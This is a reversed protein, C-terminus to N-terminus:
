TQTFYCCCCSWSWSIPSVLSSSYLPLFILSRIFSSILSYALIEKTSFFKEHTEMCGSGEIKWSDWLEAKEIDVGEAAVIGEIVINTLKLSLTHVVVVHDLTQTTRGLCEQYSNKIPNLIPIFVVRKLTNADKLM